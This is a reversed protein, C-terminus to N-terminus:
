TTTSPTNWPACTRQDVPQRSVAISGVRVRARRSGRGDLRGAFRAAPHGAKVTAVTRACAIAHRSRLFTSTGDWWLFLGSVLMARGERSRTEGDDLRYLRALGRDRFSRPRFRAPLSRPTRYDREFACCFSAM